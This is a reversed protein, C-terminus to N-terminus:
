QRVRYYLLGALASIPALWAIMQWWQMLVAVFLITVSLYLFVYTLLRKALKM